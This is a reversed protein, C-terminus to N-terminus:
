AKHNVHPGINLSWAAVPRAGCGTDVGLSKCRIYAARRGRANRRATCCGAVFRILHTPAKSATPLALRPMKALMSSVPGPARRTRCLDLLEDLTISVRQESLAALDDRMQSASIQQVVASSRDLPDAM